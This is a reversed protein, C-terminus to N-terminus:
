PSSCRPMMSLLPLRSIRRCEMTCVPITPSVCNQMYQPIVLFSEVRDDEPTKPRTSCAPNQRFLLQVALQKKGCEAAKEAIDRYSINSSLGLRSSVYRATEDEEANSTEVKYIAWYTLARSKSKGRSLKLFRSTELTLPFLRMAMLRDMWVPRSTSTLQTIILAM